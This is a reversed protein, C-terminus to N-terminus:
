LHSLNLKTPLPNPLDLTSLKVAFLEGKDHGRLSLVVQGERFDM